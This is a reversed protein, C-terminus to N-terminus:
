IQFYHRASLRVSIDSTIILQDQLFAADIQMGLVVDHCRHVKSSHTLSCNLSSPSYARCFAIQQDQASASSRILQRWHCWCHRLNSCRRLRQIFTLTQCFIFHWCMKAPLSLLRSLISLFENSTHNEQRFFCVFPVTVFYIISTPTNTNQPSNSMTNWHNVWIDVASFTHSVTPWNGHISLCLSRMFNTQDVLKPPSMPNTHRLQLLM